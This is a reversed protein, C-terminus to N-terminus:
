VEKCPVFGQQTPKGQGALNIKSIWGFHTEPHQRHLKRLSGEFLLANMMLRVDISRSAFAEM